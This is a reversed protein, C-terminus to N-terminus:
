PPVFAKRAWKVRARCMSNRLYPTFTVFTLGPATSVPFGELDGYDIVAEVELNKAFDGLGSGLVIAVEPVFDTVKRIEKEYELLRQYYAKADLM